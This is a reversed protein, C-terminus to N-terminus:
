LRLSGGSIALIGLFVYWHWFTSLSYLLNTTEDDTNKGSEAAVKQAVVRM